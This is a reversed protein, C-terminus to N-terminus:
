FKGQQFDSIAQHIEQATNMVFPGYRAVPERIPLGAVVLFRAASVARVDLRDGSGLEALRPAAVM